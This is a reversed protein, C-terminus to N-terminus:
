CSVSATGALLAAAPVAGSRRRMSPLRLRLRPRPVSRTRRPQIAAVPPTSGTIPDQERFLAVGYGPGMEDRFRAADFGATPSNFPAATNTMDRTDAQVWGHVLSMDSQKENWVTM